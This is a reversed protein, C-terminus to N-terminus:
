QLGLPAERFERDSKTEFHSNLEILMQSLVTEMVQAYVSDVRELSSLASPVETEKFTGLTNLEGYRELKAGLVAVIEGYRDQEWRFAHLDLLPGNGPAEDQELLYVDMPLRYISLLGRMLSYYQEYRKEEISDAIDPYTLEMRLDPSFTFRVYLTEEPKLFIFTDSDPADQFTNCASLFFLAFVVALLRAFNRTPTKVICM